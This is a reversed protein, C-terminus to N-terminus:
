LRWAGAVIAFFLILGATTNSKFTALARAPSKDDLRRVQRELHTMLGLLGIIFLPGLSAVIAATLSLLISVGYFIRIASKAKAGLRLASSKVGAKVDDAMDQLAYITDYGLTWFVGAAYLAVAGRWLSWVALALPPTALPLAGTQVLIAGLSPGGHAAGFGLLVGWNFTLGLWAQPWWTLRKMFPYLVVLPLSAAAIWLSVLNLAFLVAVSALVCAFAFSWAAPVGIQGSAVPRAATRAVKADIRRDVIDNVACGAARMLVAGIAFLGLLWPNPLRHAMAGALAVGQWGPLM